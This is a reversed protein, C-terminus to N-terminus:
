KSTITMASLMNGYVKNLAAINSALADVQDKFRATQVVSANMNELFKKTSIEMQSSAEVQSSSTQLQKEVVKNLQSM